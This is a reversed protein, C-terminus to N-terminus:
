GQLVQRGELPRLRPVTLAAVAVLLYACGFVFTWWTIWGQAGIALAIIWTALLVLSHVMPIGGRKARSDFAVLSASLLSAIAVAFDIWTVLPTVNLALAVVWVILLGLGLFTMYARM